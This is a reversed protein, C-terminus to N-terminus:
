LHANDFTLIEGVQLQLASLMNIMITRGEYLLKSKEPCSRRGWRTYIGGDVVDEGTFCIILTTFPKPKVYYIYYGRYDDAHVHQDIPQLTVRLFM